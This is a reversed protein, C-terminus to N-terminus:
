FNDARSYNFIMETAPQNKQKVMVYIVLTSDSTRRVTLGDFYAENNTLRILPFDKSKDKEEWAVFTKSFHKIQMVLSGDQEIIRMFESFVPGEKTVMRYMGSMTSGFPTTWVEESMGGGTTDVWRGCLWKMEDVTGLGRKGTEGLTLINATLNTQAPSQAALSLVCLCLFLSKM